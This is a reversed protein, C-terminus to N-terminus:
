VITRGRWGLMVFPAQNQKMDLAHCAVSVMTKYREVYQKARKDGLAGMPRTLDRYVSEDDLDLEESVYDSLVKSCLVALFSLNTNVAVSTRRLCFFCDFAILQKRYVLARM